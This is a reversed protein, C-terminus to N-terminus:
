HLTGLISYKISVTVICLGLVFIYLLGYMLYSKTFHFNLKVFYKFIYVFTFIAFIIIAMGDAVRQQGGVELNFAFAQNQIIEFNPNIEFIFFDSQYATDSSLSAKYLIHVIYTGSKMNEFLKLTENIENFAPGLMQPPVSIM